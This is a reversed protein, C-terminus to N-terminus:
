LDTEVNISTCSDTSDNHLPCGSLLAPSNNNFQEYNTHQQPTKDVSSSPAMPNSQLSSFVLGQRVGTYQDSSTNNSSNRSSFPTHSLTNNTNIISQKHSSSPPHGEESTSMRTVQFANSLPDDSSPTESASTRNSYQDSTSISSRPPDTLYSARREPSSSSLSSTFLLPSNFREEVTAFVSAQLPSLSYEENLSLMDSWSSSKRRLSSAQIMVDAEIFEFSYKRAKTRAPDGSEASDQSLLGASDTQLAVGGGHMAYDLDTGKEEVVYQVTECADVYDELSSESFADEGDEEQGFGLPAESEADDEKVVSLRRLNSEQSSTLPHQRPDMPSGSSFSKSDQDLDTEEQLDPLSSTNSSYLSGLKFPLM